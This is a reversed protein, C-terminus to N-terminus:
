KRCNRLRQATFVLGTGLLLLSAPEPVPAPVAPTNPGVDNMSVGIFGAEGGDLNHLHAGFVYGKSNPEYLASDSTFGGSRSVTFHLPLTADSPSSPGNIIFEFDGIGGGINNVGAGAYSFGPTVNSITVFNDPDVVNFGFARNAGSDGFLGFDDGGALNTVDMDIANGVLTTTIRIDGIPTITSAHALSACLVILVTGAAAAVKSM